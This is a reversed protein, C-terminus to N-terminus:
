DNLRDFYDAIAPDCCVLDHTQNPSPGTLKETHLLHLLIERRYYRRTVEISCACAHEHLLSRTRPDYHDDLDVFQRENALYFKLTQLTHGLRNYEFGQPFFFNIHSV